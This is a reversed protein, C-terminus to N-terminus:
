YSLGSLTRAKQSTRSELRPKRAAPIPGNYLLVETWRETSSTGDIFPFEPREPARSGQFFIIAVMCM